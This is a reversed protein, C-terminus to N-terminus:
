AKQHCNVTTDFAALEASQDSLKDDPVVNVNVVLLNTAMSCYFGHQYYPFTLSAFLDLMLRVNCHDTLIRKRAHEAAFQYLDLSIIKVRSISLMLQQLQGFMYPHLRLHGAMMIRQLCDVAQQQGVTQQMNNVKQQQQQKKVSVINRVTAAQALGLM